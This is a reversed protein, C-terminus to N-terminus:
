ELRIDLNNEFIREFIISRRPLVSKKNVIKVIDLYVPSHLDVFLSNIIHSIYVFM